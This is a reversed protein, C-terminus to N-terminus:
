PGAVKFHTATTRLTLVVSNTPVSDPLLRLTLRVTMWIALGIGIFSDPGDRM